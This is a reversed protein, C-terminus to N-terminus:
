HRAPSLRPFPRSTLSHDWRCAPQAILYREVRGLMARASKGEFVEVVRQGFKLMYAYCVNVYLDTGVVDFDRLASRLQEALDIM